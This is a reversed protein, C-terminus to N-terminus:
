QEETKSRELKPPEPYPNKGGTFHSIPIARQDNYFEIEVVNLAAVHIPDLRVGRTQMLDRFVQMRRQRKERYNDLIRTVIVSIIPGLAIAALTALAYWTETQM